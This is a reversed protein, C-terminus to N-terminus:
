KEKPIDGTDYCIQIKYNVFTPQQEFKTICFSFYHTVFFGTKWFDPHLLSCYKKKGSQKQSVGIHFM